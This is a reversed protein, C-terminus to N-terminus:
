AALTQQKPYHRNLKYEQHHPIKLKKFFSLINRTYSNTETLSCNESKYIHRRCNEIAKQFQGNLLHHGFLNKYVNLMMVYHFAKIHRSSYCYNFLPIAGIRDVYEKVEIYPGQSKCQRHDRINGLVYITPRYHDTRSSRGHENLLTLISDLALQMKEFSYYDSSDYMGIITDLHYYYPQITTRDLAGDITREFVKLEIELEHFPM